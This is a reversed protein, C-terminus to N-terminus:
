KKKKNKAKTKGAKKSTPKTTKKTVKKKTTKKKGTTVKKGAPKSKKKPPVWDEILITSTGRMKVVVKQKDRWRLNKLLTTPLAITTSGNAQKQLKRVNQIVKKTM